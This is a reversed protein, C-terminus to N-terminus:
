QRSVSDAVSGTERFNSILCRVTSHSIPLTEKHRYNFDAAIVRFSLEGSMLIGECNEGEHHIGDETVQLLIHQLKQVM